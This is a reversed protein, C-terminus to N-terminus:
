HYSLIFRKISQWKDTNGISRSITWNARQWLYSCYTRFSEDVCVRFSINMKVIWRLLLQRGVDENFTITPKHTSFAREITQQYPEPGPKILEGGYGISHKSKLHDIPYKTTSVAFTKALKPDTYRMCKWRVRGEEEIEIENEPLLIHSHRAKVKGRFVEPVTSRGSESEDM